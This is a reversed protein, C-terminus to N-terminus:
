AEDGEGAEQAAQHAALAVRQAELSEDRHRTLVGLLNLIIANVLVIRLILPDRMGNIAPVALLLNRVDIDAVEELQQNTLRATGHCGPHLFLVRYIDLALHRLPSDEHMKSLINDLFNRESAMHTRKHRAIVEANGKNWDLIPLNPDVAHGQQQARNTGFTGLWCVLYLLTECDELPTRIADPDELSRIPQLAQPAALEPRDQRQDETRPDIATGFTMLM